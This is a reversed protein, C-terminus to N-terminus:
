SDARQLLGRVYAAQGVHQLDDALVSILRVGLSVPPDWREDVIRDLDKGTLGRLFGLSRDHVADYYGTLLDGSDVRVKAVKASSHGYGTDHSPLGLAFRKQWDQSLWVQDLGSADAMHDDQVRTLHWVLWAISNADPAPRAHLDDPSLDDVVAHVEEKIRGYADILVDKVNM